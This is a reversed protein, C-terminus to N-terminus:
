LCLASFEIFRWNNWAIPLYRRINYGIKPDSTTLDICLFLCNFWHLLLILQTTKYCFTSAPVHRFLNNLKSVNWYLQVERSNRKNDTWQRVRTSTLVNCNAQGVQKVSLRTKVSKCRMLIDCLRTYLYM